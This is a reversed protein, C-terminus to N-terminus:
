PKINLLLNVEGDYGSVTGTYLQKGPNSKSVRTLSWTVYVKEKSGDSMIAEVMQPLVYKDSEKISINIDPIDSIVKAQVPIHFDDVNIHGFGGKSNDVVKIYLEEGVFQTADWNIRSYQESNNGTAKLLVTDDSARVLAVYLNDIDKGGGILFNIQGDGALRFKNSMLSGTGADGLGGKAPDIFGWLHYGASGDSRQAQNFISWGSDTAKTVMDNSFANGQVTWGSLDGTELGANEINGTKIKTDQTHEEVPIVTGDGYASKMSWVKMSKVDM